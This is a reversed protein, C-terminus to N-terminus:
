PGHQLSTSCRYIDSSRLSFRASIKRLSFLEPLAVFFARKATTPNKALNKQRQCCSLKQASLNIRSMFITACM